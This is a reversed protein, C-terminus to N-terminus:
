AAPAAALADWLSRNPSVRLKGEGDESEESRDPTVTWSRMHRDPYPYLVFNSKANVTVTVTVTM